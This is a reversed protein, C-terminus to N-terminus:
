EERNEPTPAPATATAASRSASRIVAIRSCRPSGSADSRRIAPIAWQFGSDSGDPISAPRATV